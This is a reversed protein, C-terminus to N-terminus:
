MNLGSVRPRFLCFITSSCPSVTLSGESQSRKGAGLLARFRYSRWTWFFGAYACLFFSMRFWFFVQSFFRLPPFFTFNASGFFAGLFSVMFSFSESAIPARLRLRSSFSTIYENDELRLCILVQVCSLPAFFSTSVSTHINLSLNSMYEDVYIWGCINMWMRYKDTITHQSNNIWM